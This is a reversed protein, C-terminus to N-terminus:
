GASTLPELLAAVEAHGGHRAWGLPTADFETDPRDPDAGLALLARVAEVDGQAAATHLATTRRRHNPDFGLEALLALADLRGREVAISMPAQTSEVRDVLDPHDAVLRAATTRDLRLCAAVLADEPTQEVPAAGAALLADVIASDGARAALEVPRRDGFAPHGSRGDPDVGHDLLLRVRRALGHEAAWQLQMALMAPISEAAEPMRARWPGRDDTGLGHAFLLVLHQDSPDFMRNYLAQNDNPDAGRELLLQALADGDPHPPQNVADEGGGLAGTLATFPSPLGNWLYGANPDAGHDLLLRAVELRSGPPAGPLRSFAAYLLPEWRHPGGERRALSPDDALLSAAAEVHGAVAACWIDAAAIEPDAALLDAAAQRRAPADGGGYTLCALALFRDRRDGEIPAAHPSRTHEEVVDLHRRLRAWSAFGYRRAVVLQADARRLAAPAPPRPHREHVEAIAVPDGDHVARQLDRAQRRLHDLDPSAPLRHTSM